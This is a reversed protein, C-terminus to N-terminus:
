AGSAVVQGHDTQLVLHSSWNQGAGANGDSSFHGWATPCSNGSRLHTATGPQAALKLLLRHYYVDDPKRRETSGNPRCRNYFDLHSTIKTPVESATDYAHLYVHKYKITDWLQEVFVSDIVADRYM